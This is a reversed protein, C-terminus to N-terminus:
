GCGGYLSRFIYSADAIAAPGAPIRGSKMGDLWGRVKKEFEPGLFASSRRDVCRPDLSVAARYHAVASAVDGAGEAALAKAVHDRAAEAPLAPRPAAGPAPASVAVRVAAGAAAAMLVVALVRLSKGSLAGM